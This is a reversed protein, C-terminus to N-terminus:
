TAGPLPAGELRYVVVDYFYLIPLSFTVAGYFCIFMTHHKRVRGLDFARGFRAEVFNGLTCLYRFVVAVSFIGLHSAWANDPPGVLWLVMWLMAAVGHLIATYLAFREAWSLSEDTDLLKTRIAELTAYTWALHVDAACGFVAFYSAPAFDWGFCPNLHGVFNRAPHNFVASPNFTLSISWSVVLTFVVLENSARFYQKPEVISVNVPQNLLKLLSSYETFPTAKFLRKTRRDSRTASLHILAEESTDRGKDAFTKM